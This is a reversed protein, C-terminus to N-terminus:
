FLVGILYAASGMLMTFIVRKKLQFIKSKSQDNMLSKAISFYSIVPILILFLFAYDTYLRPDILVFFPLIDLIMIAAFLGISIKAARKVGLKAAITEVRLTKDGKVDGIDLMIEFALGVIFGMVAFYIILPELTSDIVLSGIFITALYAYGVLINKVFVIKELGLSYLYFLPLSLLIVIMSFLNLFLSLLIVFLFSFVGIILALKGSLLGLVLPRDSRKNIKDADFDFYDNFAFAGIASFFVVLFAVLYEIQFGILDGALLGSLFIGFASFLAYDLRILRFFARLVRKNIVFEGNLVYSQKKM